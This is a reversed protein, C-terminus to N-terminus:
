WLGKGKMVAVVAEPAVTLYSRAAVPQTLIHKGKIPIFHDAVHEWQGCEIRDRLLYVHGAEVGAARILEPCRTEEVRKRIFRDEIDREMADEMGEGGMLAVSSNVGYAIAFADSYTLAQLRASCSLRMQYVHAWRGAANVPLSEM